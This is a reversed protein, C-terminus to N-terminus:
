IRLERLYRKLRRNAQLYYNEDPLGLLKPWGKVEERLNPINQEIEDFDARIGEHALSNRLAKLDKRKVGNPRFLYDFTWDALKSCVHAVPKCPSERAVALDFAFGLDFPKKYREQSQEDIKQAFASRELANKRWEEHKDSKKLADHKKKQDAKPLGAMIKFAGFSFLEAFHMLAMLFEGPLGKEMYFQAAQLRELAPVLNSRVVAAALEDPVEITELLNFEGTKWTKYKNEGLPHVVKKQEKDSKFGGLRKDLYKLIPSLYESKLVKDAMGYLGADILASAQLIDLSKRFQDHPLPELRSSGGREELINYFAIKQDHQKPDYVLFEGVLKLASKQQPTGGADAVVWRADPYNEELELLQRRYFNMLEELDVPLCDVRILRTEMGWQRKILEAVLQASFETDNDPRGGPLGEQRTYFLCVVRADARYQDLLPPLIRLELMQAWQDPSKTEVLGRTYDVFTKGETRAIEKLEREDGKLALNRNGLNALIIIDKM